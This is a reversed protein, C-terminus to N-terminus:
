SLHRNTFGFFLRSFIKQDELEISKKLLMNGGVHGGKEWEEPFPPPPSIVHGSVGRIGVTSGCKSVIAICNM